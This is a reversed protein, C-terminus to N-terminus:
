GGPGQVRLVLRDLLDLGYDLDIELICRSQELDGQQSGHFALAEHEDVDVVSLM